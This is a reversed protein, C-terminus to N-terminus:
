IVALPVSVDVLSVRRHGPPRRSTNPVLCRGSRGLMDGPTESTKGRCALVDMSQDSSEMM